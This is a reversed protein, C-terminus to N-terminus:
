IGELTVRVERTQKGRLITMTITQQVKLKAMIRAFDAVGDITEGDIALIVDGALQQGSASEIRFGVLGAKAAASNPRVEALMVGKPVELARADRERLLVVGLSPKAVHGTRILETVVRNVTDAPIAYGIVNGGSPSAIATNM